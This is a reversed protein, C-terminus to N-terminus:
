CFVGPAGLARAASVAAPFFVGGGPVSPNAKV